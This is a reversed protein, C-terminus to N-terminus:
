KIEWSLGANHTQLKIEREGSVIGNAGNTFRIKFLNATTNSELVTWDKGGSISRLITGQAGCAYVTDHTAYRVTILNVQVNTAVKEWERGANPTILVTGNAGVIVGRSTDVFNVGYLDNSTKSERALGM